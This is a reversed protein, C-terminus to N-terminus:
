SKVCRKAVCDTANASWRGRRFLATRLRENTFCRPHASLSRAPLLVHCTDRKAVKSSTFLRMEVLRRPGFRSRGGPRGIVGLLRGRLPLRRKPNVASELFGVEHVAVVLGVLWIALELVHGEVM